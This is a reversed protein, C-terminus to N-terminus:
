ILLINLEIKKSCQECVFYQGSPVFYKVRKQGCLFCTALTPGYGLIELLVKNNFKSKELSATLFYWLEMDPLFEPTIEAIISISELASGLLDANERIKQFRRKTLADTILFNNKNILRITSLNLSDLHPSLKSTIKTGSTAVAQIRGLDKTFLNVRRDGNSRPSSELVVAETILEDM